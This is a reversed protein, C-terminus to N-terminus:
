MVSYSDAGPRLQGSSKSVPVVRLLRGLGTTTIARFSSRLVQRATHLLDGLQKSSVVRRYRPDESLCSSYTRRRPRSADLVKKHTEFREYTFRAVDTVWKAGDRARARLRKQPNVAVGM